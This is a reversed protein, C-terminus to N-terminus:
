VLTVAGGLNEKESTTRAPNHDTQKKTNPERPPPKPDTQTETPHKPRNQDQMQQERADQTKFASPPFLLVPLGAAIAGLGKRSHIVGDWTVRRRSPTSGPVTQDMATPPPGNHAWWQGLDVTRVPVILGAVTSDCRDKEGNVFASISETNTMKIKQTQNLTRQKKQLKERKFTPIQFLKEPAFKHKQTDINTM